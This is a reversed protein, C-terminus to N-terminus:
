QSDKIRTTTDTPNDSTPAGVNESDASLTNSTQKAIMYDDITLVRQEFVLMNAVELPSMGVHALYELRSGGFTLQEKATKIAKDQNQNTTKMFKIKWSTTKKGAKKLEYNYYNSYMPLLNSFLWMADVELSRELAQSSTGDGAFLLKSVGAGEYLGNVAKDLLAFKGDKGTGNLTSAKTDFPNTIAVAGEPLNRKLANHYEMVVPLEMTPRGKDDIPVQSHIIKSNDLQSTSEMSDKANEIKIADILANALPPLAQGAQQLVEPDITFAVGKESVQYWKGEIFQEKSGGGKFTAYATQFEKPYTLMTAETLKSIDFQFRYVGEEMYSVRCLNAPVDMYATSKSDELKYQFTVGNTFIKETFLPLHFKPNLKDLFIATQAFAQQITGVDGADQLPNQMVPYITHDFTLLTSMYKIIRKYMGNVQKMSRSLGAVNTANKAPDQLMSKLRTEDIGRSSSSSQGTFVASTSAFHQHQQSPNNPNYNNKKKKFNNNNNRTQAM